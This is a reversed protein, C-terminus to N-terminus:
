GDTELMLNLQVVLSTAYAIAHSRKFAHEETKSPIWIEQDIEDRPKGILHRKAPRIVALCVALDEISHPKIQQLVPLTKPNNIQKMKRVTAVDQFKEWPPERTALAVLHAEDRVGEYISNSLCDVKFYGKKAATKHDWVALGDLPNVPIDQFYLGSQHRRGNRERAQVCRLSDIVRQPEPFDIDIDM